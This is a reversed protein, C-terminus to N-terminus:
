FGRQPFQWHSYFKLDRFGALAEVLANILDVVTCSEACGARIHPDLDPFLPSGLSGADAGEHIRHVFVHEILEIARLDFQLLNLSSSPSAM